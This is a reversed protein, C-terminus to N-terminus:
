DPIAPGPKPASKLKNELNFGIDYALYGVAGGLFPIDNGPISIRFRGLIERLRPLPDQNKAELVYFPDIGLFSYRGLSNSNLSSDLFFCSRENRLAKFIQLPELDLKYSKLIYYAM